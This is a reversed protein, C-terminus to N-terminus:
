GKMVSSMSDELRFLTKISFGAKAHLFVVFILEGHKSKRIQQSSGCFFSIPTLKSFSVFM